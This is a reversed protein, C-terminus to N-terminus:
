SNAPPPSFSPKALHDARFRDYLVIVVTMVFGFTLTLSRNLDDGNGLLSAYLSLLASNVIVIVVFQMAISSWEFGRKALAQSIAANIVVLLLTAGVIRWWTTDVNLASVFIAGILGVLLVKEWFPAWM